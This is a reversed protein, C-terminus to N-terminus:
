TAALYTATFRMMAPAVFSTNVMYPAGVYLTGEGNDYQFAILSSNNLVIAYYSRTDFITQALAVQATSTISNNASTFPLGSMFAFDNTAPKASYTYICSVTVIRGVKIYSGSATTSTFTTVGAGNSSILPTWTGEEYDDLTNPDSAAVATAPFTIGSSLQLIGGNANATPVGALLNGTARVTGFSQTGAILNERIVIRGAALDAADASIGVAIRNRLVYNSDWPASGGTIVINNTPVTSDIRNGEIIINRANYVQIDATKLGLFNNDRIRWNWQYTGSVDGVVIGRTGTVAGGTIFVNNVVEILNSIESGQPAGIIGVANNASIEFYNNRISMGTNAAGALNVGYTTGFCDNDDFVTYVSQVVHLCTPFGFIQNGRIFNGESVAGLIEVGRRNASGSAFGGEYTMNNNTIRIAFTYNGLSVGQNCRFIKCESIHSEWTANFLFAQNWDFIRLREFYLGDRSDTGQTGGAPLISVVAAWNGSSGAAGRIAFDRYFMSGGDYSASTFNLGDCNLCSLITATGGEGFISVGYPVLLPSTIRYTGAPLFLAGGGSAALAVIAAQIAATDNATGDGVAGFDKVSVIDGLKSNVSRAAAGTGSATYTVKTNDVLQAKTQSM